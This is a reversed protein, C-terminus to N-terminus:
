PCRSYTVTIKQGNRRVTSHLQGNVVEVIEIERYKEGEGWCSLSLETANGIRRSKVIKCASEGGIVDTKTYTTPGEPGDPKKCASSNYEVDAYWKGIYDDAALGSDMRMVWAVFEAASKFRSDQQTSAFVGLYGIARIQSDYDPGWVSKPSWNHCATLYSSLSYAQYGYITGLPNLYNVRFVQEIEFAQMPARTSCFAYEKEFKRYESLDSKQFCPDSSLDDDGCKKSISSTEYELLTGAKLTAVTSVNRMAVHNCTGQKCFSQMVLAEKPPMVSWKKADFSM